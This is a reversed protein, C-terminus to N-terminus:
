LVIYSDCKVILMNVMLWKYVAPEPIPDFSLFTKDLIRELIQTAFNLHLYIYIYILFIHVPYSLLYCCEVPICKGTLNSWWDM